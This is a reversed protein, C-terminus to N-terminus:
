SFPLTVRALSKLVQTCLQCVRTKSGRSGKANQSAAQEPANGFEGVDVGNGRERGVFYISSLYRVCATATAGNVEYREFCVREAKQPGM